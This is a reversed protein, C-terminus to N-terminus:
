TRVLCLSSTDLWMVLTFAIDTLMSRSFSNTGMSVLGGLLFPKLKLEVDFFSFM